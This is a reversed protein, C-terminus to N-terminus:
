AFKQHVIYPGCEEDYEEKKLCLGWKDMLVATAFISGGILTRDSAIEQMLKM